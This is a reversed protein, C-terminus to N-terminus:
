KKLRKYILVLLLIILIPFLLPLIMLIILFVEGWGLNDMFLLTNLM